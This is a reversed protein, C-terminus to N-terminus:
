KLKLQYTKITGTGRVYLTEGDNMPEEILNAGNNGTNDKGKKGITRATKLKKFVKEAQREVLTKSEPPSALITYKGSNEKVWAASLYVRSGKRAVIEIGRDRIKRPGGFHIFNSIWSLYMSQEPATTSIKYDDTTHPLIKMSYSTIIIEASPFHAKGILYILAIISLLLLLNWLIQFWTYFVIRFQDTASVKDNVAVKIDYDGTPILFLALYRNFFGTQPTIVVHGNDLVTYDFNMRCTEGDKTLTISKEDVLSEVEGKSLPKKDGTVIFELSGNKGKLQGKNLVLNNDAPEIGYVVPKKPNLIITKQLPAFGQLNTTATIVTEGKKLEYNKYVLKNKGEPLTKQVANNGNEDITLEMGQFLGSPLLSLDIVKDTGMRVVDCTIDVKEKERLASPDTITKGDRKLTIRMELAPEYLIVLNDKSINKTMEITYDGEDIYEGGSTITGLNGFLKDGLNRGEVNKPSAIRISSVNLDGGGEVSAASVEAESNQALVQINLLPIASSIQVTNGSVKIADETLRYRGSIKDAIASMTDVIDSQRSHEVEIYERETPVTISDKDGIAMYICQVPSGNAAAAGVYKNLKNDLEAKSAESKTDGPIKEFDGDTIIVLWYQTSPDTDKTNLLAKGATDIANFPTVKGGKTAGRIKDVTKQRDSKFTSLLGSSSDSSIVHDKDSMLTILLTDDPNMLGTFTQLAYNAYAWSPNSKSHMSSSDDYVLSVIKKPSLSQVDDDEAHVVAYQSSAFSVCIALIIIWRLAKKPDSKM